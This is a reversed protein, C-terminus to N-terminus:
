AHTPLLNHVKEPAAPAKAGEKAEEKYEFSTLTVATTAGLLLSLIYASKM